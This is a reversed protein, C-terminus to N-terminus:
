SVSIMSNYIWVRSTTLSFLSLVKSITDDLDLALLSPLVLSAFTLWRLCAYLTLLCSGSLLCNRFLTTKNPSLILHLDFRIVSPPPSIDKSGSYFVLPAPWQGSIISASSRLNPYSIPNSVGTSRETFSSHYDNSFM